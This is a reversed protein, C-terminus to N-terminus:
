SRTSCVNVAAESIPICPLATAAVKPVPPVLENAAKRDERPLSGPAMAGNNVQQQGGNNINAQKAFVVPPNKIAALTELTARCQGQAKLALRMYRESADLYEGMNVASRRALECFIADLAMAQATLLTEAGSLDGAHTAKAQERVVALAETLALEGFTGKSFTTLIVASAAMGGGALEARLREESKGSTDTIHLQNSKAATKATAAPTKKTTM